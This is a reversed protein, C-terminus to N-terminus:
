HPLALALRWYGHGELPAFLDRSVSYRCQTRRCLQRAGLLDKHFTEVPRTLDIRSRIRIPKLIATSGRTGHSSPPSTVRVDAFPDAGAGHRRGRVRVPTSAGPQVRQPTPRAAAIRRASSSRSCFLLGTCCDDPEESRSSDWSWRSVPRKPTPRSESNPATPSKIKREHSTGEGNIVDHPSASRTQRMSSRLAL